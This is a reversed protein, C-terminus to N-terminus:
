LSALTVFRKALFWGKFEEEVFDAGDEKRWGQGRFCSKKHIPAKMEFKQGYFPPKQHICFLRFKVNLRM